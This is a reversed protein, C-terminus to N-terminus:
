ATTRGGTAGETTSGNNDLVAENGRGYLTSHRHQWALFQQQHCFDRFGPQSWERAVTVPDANGSGQGCLLELFFLAHPYVLFRVYEPRTWTKRLYKLYEIFQPDQLLIPGNGERYTALFHLYAPSALAQGFELEQEFRNAPLDSLGDVDSLAPPPNM